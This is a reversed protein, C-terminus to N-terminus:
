KKKTEELIDCNQGKDEFKYNLSPIDQIKNQDTMVQSKVNNKSQSRM